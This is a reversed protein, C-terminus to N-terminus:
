GAIFALLCNRRRATIRIHFIVRDGDASVFFYIMEFDAFVYVVIRVFAFVPHVFVAGVDGAERGVIMVKQMDTLVRSRDVFVHQMQQCFLDLRM